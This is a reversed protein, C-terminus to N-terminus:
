RAQAPPAEKLWDQVQELEVKRTVSGAYQLGYRLEGETDYLAM